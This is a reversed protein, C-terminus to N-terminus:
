EDDYEDEDDEDFEDEDDIFVEAEPMPAAIPTVGDEGAECDPLEVPEAEANGRRVAPERGASFENLLEDVRDNTASLNLMAEELEQDIAELARKIPDAEM